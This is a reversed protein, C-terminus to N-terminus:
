KGDFIKSHTVNSSIGIFAKSSNMSALISNIISSSRFSRSPISNSTISVFFRSLYYNFKKSKLSHAGVELGECKLLSLQEGILLKAKVKFIVDIEFIVYRQEEGGSVIYFGM